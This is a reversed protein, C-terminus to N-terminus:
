DEPTGGPCQTHPVPTGHDYCTVTRSGPEGCIRMETRWYGTNTNGTYTPAHASCGQFITGLVTGSFSSTSYFKSTYTPGRVPDLLAAQEEALSAADDSGACGAAGIATALLVMSVLSRVSFPNTFTM